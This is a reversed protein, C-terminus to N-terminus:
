ISLMLGIRLIHLVWKSTLITSSCIQKKRSFFRINKYRLYNYSYSPLFHVETEVGVIISADVHHIVVTGTKLYSSKLFQLVKERGGEVWIDIDGPQRRLSLSGDYLRAVGQGKLVCSRLGGNKFVRTLHEAAENLKKNQQEIMQVEGIWQLLLMKPISLEANKARIVEIGSLVVGVLSQKAAIEYIQQWEDESPIRSLVTRTGLAIQILEVFLSMM